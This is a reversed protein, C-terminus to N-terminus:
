STRQRQGNSHLVVSEEDGQQYSLKQIAREVYLLLAGAAVVAATSVGVAAGLTGSYQFGLVVFLATVVGGFITIGLRWESKGLAYTVDGAAYQVGRLPILIALVAGVLVSDKYESLVSTSAIVLALVVAVASVLGLWFSKRITSYMLTRIEVYRKSDALRFYQPYSVLAIARVPIVGYAAFRSAVGYPGATTPGGAYGIVLKDVTDTASSAVGVLGFGLGRRLWEFTVRFGYLFNHSRAVFATVGIGGLGLFLLVTGWTELTGEWVLLAAVTGLLKLIPVAVSAVFYHSLAGSTLFVMVLASWLPYIVMEILIVFAFALMQGRFIAGAGLIVAVASPLGFIVAIPLVVSSAASVGRQLVLPQVWYSYGATALPVLTMAIAAFLVYSGYDEPGLLSAMLLFTIGSVAAKLVETM